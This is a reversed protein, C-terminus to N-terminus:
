HRRGAELTELIPSTDRMNLVGHGEFSDYGIEIESPRSNLDNTTASVQESNHSDAVAQFYAHPWWGAHVSVM